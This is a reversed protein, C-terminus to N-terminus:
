YGYPPLVKYFSFKFISYENWYIPENIFHLYTCLMKFSPFSDLSYKRIFARDDTTLLMSETIHTKHCDTESGSWSGIYLPAQGSLDTSAPLRFCHFLLKIPKIKTICAPCSCLSFNGKSQRRSTKEGAEQEQCIHLLPRPPSFWCSCPLPSRAQSPPPHIFM